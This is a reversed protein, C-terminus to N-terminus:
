ELQELVAAMDSPLSKLFDDVDSEEPTIQELIARRQMALPWSPDISDLYREHAILNRGINFVSDTSNRALLKIAKGTMYPTAGVGHQALIQNALKELSAVGFRCFVLSHQLRDCLRFEEEPINHEEFPTLIKSSHIMGRQQAGESVMERAVLGLQNPKKIAAKSGYVLLRGPEVESADFYFQKGLYRHSNASLWVKRNDTIWRVIFEYINKPIGQVTSYDLKRCARLKIVLELEDIRDWDVSPQHFVFFRRLTALNFTYRVGFYPTGDVGLGHVRSYEKPDFLDIALPWAKLVDEIRGVSIVNGDHLFLFRRDNRLISVLFPLKIAIELTTELRRRLEGLTVVHGRPLTQGVADLLQAYSVWHPRIQQERLNAYLAVIPLMGGLM